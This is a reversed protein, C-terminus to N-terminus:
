QGKLLWLVAAVLAFGVVLFGLLVMWLPLGRSPAPAPPQLAMASDLQLRRSTDGSPRYVQTEGESSSQPLPEEYLRPVGHPGTSTTPSMVPANTDYAQPQPAPPPAPTQQQPPQSGRGLSAAISPPIYYGVPHSQLQNGKDESVTPEDRSARADGPAGRQVMVLQTGGPGVGRTGVVNVQSAAGISAAASDVRPELRPMQGGPGPKGPIQVRPMAITAASEETTMDAVMPVRAPRGAGAPPAQAAHPADVGARPGAAPQDLIQPPVLRQPAASAGPGSSFSAPSAPAAGPAPQAGPASSPRLERWAALAELASQFRQNADRALGRAVFAELRPDTAGSMVEALARPDSKAKMEVMVLINRAAYPLQGTLSQFILTACAYIDARHDVTKAKGIQEPPMFSFTGLSQGMETLTEGGVEKPVKSIGFDLIKVRITGDPRRELFVNSPKLDRHIIGARHADALGMWVQEIIPHLEDFPVPGTRKLRDILSEGELLEFVLVVGHEPDEEVDLVQTVHDSNISGAARAEQRFRAVASSKQKSDQRLLKIAVPRGTRINEAAFVEGMGGRGLPRSIRYRSAVVTGPDLDM